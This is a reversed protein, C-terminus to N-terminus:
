FPQKVWIQSGCWVVPDTFDASTNHPRGVFIGFSQCQIHSVWFVLLCSCAAERTPQFNPTGNRSSRPMHGRSPACWLNISETSIHLHNSASITQPHKTLPHCTGVKAKYPMPHLKMVMQPTSTLYGSLYM